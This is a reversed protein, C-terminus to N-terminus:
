LFIYNFIKKEGRFDDCGIFQELNKMLIFEIEEIGPSM